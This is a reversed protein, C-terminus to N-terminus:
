SSTVHSRGEYCLKLKVIWYQENSACLYVASSYFTLVKYLPFKIGILYCSEIDGKWWGSVVVM